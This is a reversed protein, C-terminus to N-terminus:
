QINENKTNLELFEKFEETTVGAIFGTEILAGAIFIILQHKYREPIQENIIRRTLLMNESMDACFNMLAILKSPNNLDREIKLTTTELIFKAAEDGGLSELVVNIPDGLLTITSKEKM